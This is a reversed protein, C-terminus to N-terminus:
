NLQTCSLLPRTTRNVFVGSLSDHVPVLTENVLRNFAAAGRVMSSAVAPCSAWKTNIRNTGHSPHGGYVTFVQLAIHTRRHAEVTADLKEVWQQLLYALWVPGRLGVPLTRTHLVM